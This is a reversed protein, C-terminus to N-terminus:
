DGKSQARIAVMGDTLGGAHATLKIEGAAHTSQVLVEALGNFASRKWRTPAPMYQTNLTVGHSLGGSGENNKVVVAVVNDGANLYQSVPFIPDLQWDHSEGALRGNVYVWGEDDITGFDLITNAAKLDKESLSLHTRYIASEGPKLPGSDVKVDATQWDGDAIEPATGARNQPDSILKMRWETLPLSVTQPASPYVDPEHCAPDGNGVGIIKGPGSIEYNVMNDAIPVIRGASDTVAVTVVSVDAGDAAIMQRDPTLRLGTPEGTTEVKDEAIVRGDKCGKAVLTGPTYNVSWQLHSNKKIDKRGLSRGNLFLEVEQCNSFCRVDIPQGEKGAWNWHPMLHLVTKGSWWSQYYYFVDKPFGCTDIIGFESSINPWGFPSPEGRYDFGTWVFAGSAWPRASYYKWWEEATAGYGPKNDDYASDYTMTNTYVGRTYFASAEETGIAPKEPNSRHFADMDGNNLYNFGQVDMVTSFGDPKDGSWSNMAATCLRTSDLGHVLRQMTGFVEGAAATRQVEEENALSWIFVSPHNRDRRVQAALESLNEADSGLLRNEDMVLMGLQDCAELLESTPANHSTRIANCGMEKLKAVRFNQLADPLAVGVGAHDQHNCTGKIVYPRGNLMFGKNVDFAMTRIGFKTEVRDVTQGDAEITTVLRYLRPSEPSWLTPDPVPAIAMLTSHKWPDMHMSATATAVVKGDPGAIEWEVKAEVARNQSNELDTQIRATAAGTASNNKFETYVFTGDPAVALPATKELWVHRYIGAGEYFWGEPQSADVRVALVNEHGYNAVDTVDCRFSGYGSEHHAIRYGNLFIRSDRYVGDFELWLRKGRDAAALDFRRRYWGVSNTGYGPGVPKYGHSRDSAEDFPLEVVWDHPLDVTRWLADSFSVRAPGAGVGAKDLKEGTGWTDGLYFKWDSDLSTRERLSDASCISLAVGASLIPV